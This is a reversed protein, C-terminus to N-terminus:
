SGAPRIQACGRIVPTYLEVFQSWALDDRADRIRLLLSLQTLPPEPM